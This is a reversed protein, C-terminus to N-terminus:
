SNLTVTGTANDYGVTYGLNEAIPRIPVFTSGNVLVAATDMEKAAGNVTITKSDIQLKLVTSDKTITVTKNAGDWAVTAGLNESVARVPVLTRNNSDIFPEVQTPIIKGNLTMPIGFTVVAGGKKLTYDKTNIVSGNALVEVTLKHNGDTLSSLNLTQAYPITSSAAVWTGDVRYTVSVNDMTFFPAYTVLKVKSADAIRASGLKKYSISSSTQGKSLFIPNATLEKYLSTMASNGNLEFDYIDVVVPPRNFYFMGKLQPFLIPAYAYTIRMYKDAWATLDEANSVSYNEVGGESVMLPKKSGYLKVLDQLFTNPNAYKGVRYIASTTDDTNKNGGFYRTTYLSVGVWDVYTDGPYFMDYTLGQASVSNPSWIMAVNPATKHMIDAVTKFATKFETPDAPIEWVNMEAGFRLLIKCDLTKLYDAAKQIKATENPVSALSNGENKLNWALEIVSYKELADFAGIANIMREEVDETEFLVYVITASSQKSASIPFEDIEGYYVGSAPENIAKYNVAGSADPVEAYLDIQVDYAALKNEMESIAFDMDSAIGSVYGQEILFKYGKAFPISQKLAAKLKNVDGLAMWAESVANVTSWCDNIEWGNADGASMWAAVAADASRGDLWYDIKAQGTEAIKAKDGSEVAAIYADSLKWFAKQVSKVDGVKVAAAPLSMAVLMVLALALTFVKKM